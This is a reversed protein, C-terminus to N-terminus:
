GDARGLSYEVKWHHDIYYKVATAMNLCEDCENTECIDQPQLKLIGLLCDKFFFLQPTQFWKACCLKANM